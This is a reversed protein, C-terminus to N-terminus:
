QNGKLLQKLRLAKLSASPADIKSSSIASTLEEASQIQEKTPNILPTPGISEPMPGDVYNFKPNLYEQMLQREKIDPLPQRPNKFQEAMEQLAKGITPDQPAENGSFSKEFSRKVKPSSKSAASEGLMGRLGPMRDTIKSIGGGVFGSANDLTKQDADIQTLIQDSTPEADTGFMLNARAAEAMDGETMQGARKLNQLAIDPNQLYAKLKEWSAPSNSKLNKENPMAAAGAVLSGSKAFRPDFAAFKSRIKSPDTVAAIDEIMPVPNEDFSAASDGTNRLITSDKNSKSADYLHKEFLNESWMRGQLDVDHAKDLKLQVPMINSRGPQVINLNPYYSDPVVDGSVLKKQQKELEQLEALREPFKPDKLSGLNKRLAQIKPTLETIENVGAMEAYSAATKPNDAFFFAKKADESNTNRGLFAPDFEKIDSASGHYWTKDGFGMDASRKARPGYVEDLAKLYAARADGTLQAAKEPTDVAKLIANPDKSVAKAADDTLGLLKALGKFKSM